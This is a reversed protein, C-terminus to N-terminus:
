DKKVSNNERILCTTERISEKKSEMEKSCYDFLDNTDKDWTKTSIILDGNLDIKSM